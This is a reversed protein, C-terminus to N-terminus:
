ISLMEFCAFSHPGCKFDRPSLTACTLDCQLGGQLSKKLERPCTRPAAASPSRARRCAPRPAPARHTHTLARPRAAAACARGRRRDPARPSPLPSRASAAGRHWVPRCARPTGRGAVAATSQDTESRAIGPTRPGTASAASNQAAAHPAAAPSCSGLLEDSSQEFGKPGSGLSRARSILQKSSAEITACYSLSRKRASATVPAISSISPVVLPSM